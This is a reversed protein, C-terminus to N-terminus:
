ILLQFLIEIAIPFTAVSYYNELLETLEYNTWKKGQKDNYGLITKKLIFKGELLYICPAGFILAFVLPISFTIALSM